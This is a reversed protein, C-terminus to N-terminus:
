FKSTHICMPSFEKHDWCVPFTSLHNEFWILFLHLACVCSPSPSVVAVDSCAAVKVGRKMQNKSAGAKELEYELQEYDGTKAVDLLKKLMHARMSEGGISKAIEFDKRSLGGRQDSKTPEQGKAPAKGGRAARPKGPADGQAQATRTKTGAASPSGKEGSDLAARKAANAKGGLGDGRYGAMSITFIGNRRPHCPFGSMGITHLLIGSDSKSQQCSRFAPSFGPIPMSHPPSFCARQFMSLSAKSSKTPGYKRGLAVSASGFSSCQYVASLM